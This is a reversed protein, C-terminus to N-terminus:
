KVMLINQYLRCFVHVTVFIAKNRLVVQKVGSNRPTLATKAINKPNRATANAVIM